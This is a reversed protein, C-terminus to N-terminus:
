ENEMCAYGVYRTIDLMSHLEDRVYDEIDLGTIFDELDLVNINTNIRSFEKCKEYADEYKYKRLITQIGEIIVVVHKSLDFAIVRKNVEIKNLGISINRYAILIHGFVSGINRTLTSDTLDRQLRSIPLDRSLFELQANAWKLNAEANEFNIPNVKHPMTSSGVEGTKISLKLYENSIYLWMDTCLDILICNIRKLNDFIRSINEYNEIQSTFENRKLDFQYLFKNAFTKWNIDPFACVHANMNGVAGGFKAYYTVNSLIDKEKGIRYSFTKLEKGFTTPVAPQGHTRSIMIADKWKESFRDIQKVIENLSHIYPTEITDRLMLPIATNNIDQSTLGFHIFSNYKDIGHEKLKDRIYYEIAKVDHNILSEHEKIKLCENPTFDTIISCIKPIDEEQISSYTPIKQLLYVLYTIEVRLRYKFYAYESFYSRLVMTSSYYRGDVSSLNTLSCLKKDKTSITEM